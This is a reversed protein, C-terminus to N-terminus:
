SAQSVRPSKVAFIGVEARGRDTECRRGMDVRGLNGMPGRQPRSIESRGGVQFPFISLGRLVGGQPRPIESRGGVQFSQSGGRVCGGVWSGECWVALVAKSSTGSGEEDDTSMRPDMRAVGWGSVGGFSMGLGGPDRAFNPTVRTVLDASSGVLPGVDAQGRADSPGSDTGGWCFVAM